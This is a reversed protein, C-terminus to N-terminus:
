IIAFRSSMCLILFHTPLGTIKSRVKVISLLCNKEKLNISHLWCVMLFLLVSEPFTYFIDSPDQKYMKQNCKKLIMKTNFSFRLRDHFITGLYKYDMATQVLSGYITTSVATLTVVKEALLHWVVWCVASSYTRPAPHLCSEVRRM